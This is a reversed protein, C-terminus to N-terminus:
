RNARGFGKMVDVMSGYEGDPFRGPLDMIGNPAKHERAEALLDEESAFSRM